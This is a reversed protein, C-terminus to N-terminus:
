KKGVKLSRVRKLLSNGSSKGENSEVNFKIPQDEDDFSNSTKTSNQSVARPQESSGGGLRQRLSKKRNLGGINARHVAEEHAVNSAAPAGDLFTSSGLGLTTSGHVPEAKVNTDFQTINADAKIAQITSQSGNGRQYSQHNKSVSTTYLDDDDDERGQIYKITADKTNQASGKISNNPGDAPFAAVPAAKANKNRHPTCADFPGDHHFAGGFLGTVDLKDITDVNKPAVKQKSSSSRHTRSKDSRSSRHGERDRHRRERDSRNEKDKSESSRHERSPRHERHSRHQRHEGNRQESSRRERGSVEGRSGSEKRHGPWETHQRTVHDELPQSRSGSSNSSQKERPYEPSSSKKPVAEDYSPPLDAAPQSNGRSRNRSKEDSNYYDVTGNNNSYTPPTHSGGTSEQSLAESFPNNSSRRQVAM